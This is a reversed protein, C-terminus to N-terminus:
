FVLQGSVLLRRLFRGYVMATCRLLLEALGTGSIIFNCADGMIGFLAVDAFFGFFKPKQFQMALVASGYFLVLFLMKLSLIIWFAPIKQGKLILGERLYGQGILEPHVLQAALAAADLTLECLVLTFYLGEHREYISMPDHDEYDSLGPTLPQKPFEYGPRLGESFSGDPNKVFVVSADSDSTM